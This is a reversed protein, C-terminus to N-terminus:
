KLNLIMLCCFDDWQRKSIAKNNNAHHLWEQIISILLIEAVQLLSFLVPVRTEVKGLSNNRITICSQNKLMAKGRDLHSEGKYPFTVNQTLLIMYISLEQVRFHAFSLFFSKRNM